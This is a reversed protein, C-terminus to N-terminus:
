GFFFMSQIILYSSQLLLSSFCCSFNTEVCLNWWRTTFIVLACNMFSSSCNIFWSGLIQYLVYYFCIYCNLLDSVICRSFEKAPVLLFVLLLFLLHLYSLLSLPSPLFQITQDFDMLIIIWYSRHHKGDFPRFLINLSIIFYVLACYIWYYLVKSFNLFYLIM